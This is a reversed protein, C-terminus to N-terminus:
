SLPSRPSSYDQNFKTGKPLAERVILTASAFFVTIMVKQIGLQTRVFPTVKERWAAFMERPEYHYRFCPWEGAQLGMLLM